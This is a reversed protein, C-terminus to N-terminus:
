PRAEGDTLSLGEFLITLHNELLREMALGDEPMISFVEALLIHVILPGAISRVTLDADLPRLYGEDMGRQLLARLTPIAKDLVERRYMAAIQPFQGAERLVLQPVAYRAPEMLKGVLMRLVMTIAVRPDGRFQAVEGIAVDAIPAVARHVIGEMLADKSPFYLYVLGKSVGARRAVDEVKTAAFGRELFLELAADLVEDPRAEARRRFKPTTAPKPPKSPM